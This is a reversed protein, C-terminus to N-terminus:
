TTNGLRTASNTDSENCIEYLVNDLDNVTDVIKRVYAEEVAIVSPILLTQVETGKGTQNPDGDIGNINNNVNFPHGNWPNNNPSPKDVSFGNFLMISVYIGREGAEIIRQRM